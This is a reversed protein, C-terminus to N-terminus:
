RPARRCPAHARRGRRAAVPRSPRMGRVARRARRFAQRRVWLGGLTCEEVRLRQRGSDPSRQSAESTRTLRAWAMRAWPRWASAVSASVRPSCAGARQSASQTMLHCVARARSAARAPSWWRPSSSARAATATASRVLRIRDRASAWRASASSSQAVPAVSSAALAARLAKASSSSFPFTAPAAVVM